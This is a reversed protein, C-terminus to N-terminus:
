NELHSTRCWFCPFHHSHPIITSAVSRATNVKMISFPSFYIINIQFQFFRPYTPGVEEKMIEDGINGVSEDNESNKVPAEEVAEM